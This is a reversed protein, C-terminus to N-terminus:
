RVNELRVEFMNRNDSLYFRDGAHLRRVEGPKLREGTVLFTGNTSRDEVLFSQSSADYKVVTHTRSIDEANSPFVLQAQQPDRGLIVAQVGLEVVSGAFQGNLGVLVPKLQPVSPTPALQVQQSAGPQSGPQVNPQQGAQAAPRPGPKAAPVPASVAQSKPRSVVFIVAGLLIIGMAGAGWVLKNMYWPAKGPAAGDSVPGTVQQAQDGQKFPVNARKLEEIIEEYTRMYGVAAFNPSKRYTTIGVVEGKSNFAPGGSNGHNIAADTQYVRTQNEDRTVKQIKGSSVSSESNAWVEEVDAVAPYGICTVDDGVNMGAAAFTVDPRDLREDMEFIAIDKRQIDSWGILKGTKYRNYGLVVAPKFYAVYKQYKLAEAVVHYNTVIYKGNGIIFGTGGTPEDKAAVGIDRLFESIPILTGKFNPDLVGKDVVMTVRVVSQKMLNIDAAESSICAAAMTMGLVAVLLLGHLFLRKHIQKLFM